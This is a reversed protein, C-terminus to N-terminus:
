SPTALRLGVAGGVILLPLPSASGGAAGRVAGHRPDRHRRSRDRDLDRLGHRNAIDQGGPLAPVRQCGHRLGTLVSPVLRTFGETYRVGIAWGVEALGALLLYVWAM